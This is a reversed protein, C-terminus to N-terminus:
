RSLSTHGPHAGRLGAGRHRRLPDPRQGRAVDDDQANGRPLDSRLVGRCLARGAGADADGARRPRSGEAARGRPWPHLRAHTGESMSVELRGGVLRLSVHRRSLNLTNLRAGRASTADSWRLSQSHDLMEMPLDPQAADPNSDSRGLLLEHSSLPFAAPTPLELIGHYVDPVPSRNLDVYGGAETSLSCPIVKVPSFRDEGPLRYYLSGSDATGALALSSDLDIDEDAGERVPEGKENFWIAWEDLGPLRREGDIRLLAIGSLKLMHRASLPTSRSYASRDTQQFFRELSSGQANGDSHEARAREEAELAARRASSLERSVGDGGAPRETAQEVPRETVPEGGSQPRDTRETTGDRGSSAGQETPLEVQIGTETVPEEIADPEDPEIDLEFDPEPEPEPEEEVMIRSTAPEALFDVEIVLSDEDGGEGAGDELVWQFPEGELKPIITETLKVEADSPYVRESDAASLNVSIHARDGAFWIPARIPVTRDNAILMSGQGRYVGVPRKIQAGKKWFSWEPIAVPEDELTRRMRIEGLLDDDENPIFVGFGFQFAVANEAIDPDPMVTYIPERDGPLSRAFKRGHLTALNTALAEIRHGGHQADARWKAEPVWVAVDTFVPTQERFRGADDRVFKIDRCGDLAAQLRFDGDNSGEEVIEPGGGYKRDWLPDPDFPDEVKVLTLSFVGIAEGRERYSDLADDAKGKGKFVNKLM